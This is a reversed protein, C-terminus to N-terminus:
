GNRVESMQENHADVFKQAVAIQWAEFGGNNHRSSPAGYLKRLAKDTEWFRKAAIEHGILMRRHASDHFSEKSVTESDLSELWLTFTDKM